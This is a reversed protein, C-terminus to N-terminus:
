LMLMGSDVGDLLGGADHKPEVMPREDESDKNVKSSAVGHWEEIAGKLQELTMSELNGVGVLLPIDAAHPINAKIWDILELAEPSPEPTEKETVTPSIKNDEETKGSEVSAVRSHVSQEGSAQLSSAAQSVFGGADPMIDQTFADSISAARITADIFASKSAMKIATNFPVSITGYSGMGSAIHKGSKDKMHCRVVVNSSNPNSPSSLIVIPDSFEATLDKAKAIAEAGPKMLVRRKETVLAIDRPMMDKEAIFFHVGEKLTDIIAKSEAIVKELRKQISAAM